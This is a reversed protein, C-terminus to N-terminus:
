WGVRNESQKSRGRDERGNAQCPMQMIEPMAVGPVIM